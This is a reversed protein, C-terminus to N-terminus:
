HTIMCRSMKIVECFVQIERFEVLNITLYSFHRVCPMVNSALSRERERDSSCILLRPLSKDSTDITLITKVLLEDQCTTEQTNSESPLDLRKIVFHEPELIRLECIM